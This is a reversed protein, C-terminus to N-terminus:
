HQSINGICTFGVEGKGKLTMDLRDYASATQTYSPQMKRQPGTSSCIVESAASKLLRLEEIIQISSILIIFERCVELGWLYLYSMWVQLNM